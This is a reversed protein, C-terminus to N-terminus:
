ETRAKLDTLYEVISEVSKQRGTEEGKPFFLVFINWHPIASRGPYQSCVTASIGAVDVAYEETCTNSKSYMPRRM